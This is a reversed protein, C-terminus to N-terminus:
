AVLLIALCAAIGYYHVARATCYTQIVEDCVPSERILFSWATIATTLATFRGIGRMRWAAAVGLLGALALVLSQLAEAAGNEVFVDHLEYGALLSVLVIVATAALGALPAHLAIKRY